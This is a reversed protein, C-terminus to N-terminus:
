SALEVLRYGTMWQNRIEYPTGTLKKRLKSMYVTVLTRAYLPGGNPDDGYLHEIIAESRVLRSRQSWLLSLIRHETPTLPRIDNAVRICGDELLVAAEIEAAAMQEFALSGTM